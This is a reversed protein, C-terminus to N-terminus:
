GNTNAANVRRVVQLLLFLVGVPFLVHWPGDHMGLLIWGVAWVLLIVVGLVGLVGFTARNM